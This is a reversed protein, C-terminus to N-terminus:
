LRHFTNKSVIFKTLLCEAAEWVFVKPSRSSHRRFYRVFHTVQNNEVLSATRPLRFSRAGSKCLECKIWWWKGSCVVAHASSKRLSNQLSLPSFSFSTVKGQNKEERFLSQFLWAQPSAFSPGNTKWHLLVIWCFEKVGCAMGCSRRRAFLKGMLSIQSSRRHSSWCTGLQSSHYRINKTAIKNQRVMGFLM